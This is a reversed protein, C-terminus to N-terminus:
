NTADELIIIYILQNPATTGRTESRTQIATVEPRRPKGQGNVLVTRRLRGTAYRM